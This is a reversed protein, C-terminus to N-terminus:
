EPAVFELGRLLSSDFEPAYDHGAHPVIELDCPVGSQDFLDVMAQLNTESVTNDEEGVIVYGRLGPNTNKEVLPQWKETQLSFPGNPAFAVFGHTNATGNLALWIAVEAGMAHGALVIREPDIAYQQHLAGVHREIEEAALRRDDWVYAGKWIAQSSQPAGVLWGDTAAPKWFDVSDRFTAINTHLGLLLPCLPGGPQCQNEARLILMPYKESSDVERLKQNIQVLNEFDPNGQLRQLAPSKRLLAESYWFGRQLVQNLIELAHEQDGSRAALMLRWYDLVHNYEPYAQIAQDALQMALEYDRSRNLEEIRALLEDFNRFQM